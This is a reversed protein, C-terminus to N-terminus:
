LIVQSIPLKRTLLQYLYITNKELDDKLFKISKIGEFTFDQLNLFDKKKANKFIDSITINNM